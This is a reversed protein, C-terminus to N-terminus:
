EDEVVELKDQKNLKHHKINMRACQLHNFGSAVTQGGEDM